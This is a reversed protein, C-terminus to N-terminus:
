GQDHGKRDITEEYLIEDIELIKCVLRIGAIGLDDYLESMDEPNWVQKDLQLSNSWKASLVTFGAKDRNRQCKLNKRGM